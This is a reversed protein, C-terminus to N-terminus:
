DNNKEVEQQAEEAEAQEDDAIVEKQDEPESKVLRKVIPRSKSAM